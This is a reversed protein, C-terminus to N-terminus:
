QFITISFRKQCKVSPLVKRELNKKKMVRHHVGENEITWSSYSPMVRALVVTSYKPINKSSPSFSIFTNESIDKSKTSCSANVSKKLPLPAIEKIDTVTNRLIHLLFLEQVINKDEVCYHKLLRSFLVHLPSGLFSLHAQLSCKQATRNSGRITQLIDPYNKSPLVIVLRWLTAHIM